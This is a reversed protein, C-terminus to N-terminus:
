IIPSCYICDYFPYIASAKDMDNRRDGPRKKKLFKYGYLMDDIAIYQFHSIEAGNSRRLNLLDVDVIHRGSAQKEIEAIM